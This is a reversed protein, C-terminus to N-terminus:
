PNSSDSEDNATIPETNMRDHKHPATYVEIVKLRINTLIRIKGAAVM